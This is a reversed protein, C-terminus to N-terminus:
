AALKFPNTGKPFRRQCFLPTNTEVVHIGHTSCHKVGSDGFSIVRTNTQPWSGGSSKQEPNTPALTKPLASLELFGRTPRPFNNIPALETTRLVPTLRGKIGEIM